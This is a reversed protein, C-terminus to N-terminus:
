RGPFPDDPRSSQSEQRYYGAINRRLLELPNSGIKSVGNLELQLFISSVQNQTATAFHHGVVRFVWCGGNYELGALGEIM